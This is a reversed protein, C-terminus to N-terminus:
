HWGKGRVPEGRRGYGLILEERMALANRGATGRRDILSRGRRTSRKIENKFAVIGHRLGNQSGLQAGVPQKDPRKSMEYERTNRKTKSASRAEPAQEHCM